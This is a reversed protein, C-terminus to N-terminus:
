TLCFPCTQHALVWLDCARCYDGMIGHNARKCNKCIDESDDFPADDILSLGLTDVDLREKLEVIEQEILEVNGKFSLYNKGTLFCIFQEDWGDHEALFISCGADEKDYVIYRGVNIKENYM